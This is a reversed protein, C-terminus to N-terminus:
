EKNGLLLSISDPQVLSDAFINTLKWKAELNDAPHITNYQHMVEDEDNYINTLNESEDSSASNDQM